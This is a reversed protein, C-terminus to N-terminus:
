LNLIENVNDIFIKIHNSWSFKELVKDKNRLIEDRKETDTLAEIIDDSFIILDKPDRAFFANGSFIEYSLANEKVLPITGLALAEIPPLGFAERDSVYILLESFSILYLIKDADIYGSRLVVDRGKKKNIKQALEDLIPPNYKDICAVLYQIRPFDDAVKEFALISEKVNRRDFAQGISIIYKDKIGLEQKIKKIKDKAAQSSKDFKKLKESIGWYNVFIREDKIKYFKKLENKSFNSITMIKSAKKAARKCFLRYSIKYKFALKGFYAEYYVDNTLVVISKGFFLAPMMYSPFFFLDIRDKFYYFPILIHYFINFSPRLFPLKIVKKTFLKSKLFDDDPIKSKFYLIFEYRDYLEKHKSIENLFNALMKGVGFREGELQECEIGIKIKRNKM